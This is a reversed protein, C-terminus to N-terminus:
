PTGPNPVVQFEIRRNDARGSRTDNSAVPDAAGLGETSLRSEDVGMGTLYSAVSEARRRSLDINHEPDGRDDTYGVIKVYVQDYEVLQRVVQDLSPLSSRQIIASNTEFTIGRLTDRDIIAGEILQEPCGDTDEIENFTEPVTPCLDEPDPIGDGDQDRSQDDSPCGDAGPGPM